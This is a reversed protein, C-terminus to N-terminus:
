KKRVIIVQNSTFYADSFDVNERREDTATMGAVVFDVAGSQLAAILSDFAMDVVQLKRGMDLAVFQSLTVDFGVIKSGEVYEFPPFAANTGMKIVEGSTEVEDPVHVVGDAPVFADLMTQYTGDDKLTRITRNVADLVETNGKKVAVAYEETAFTDNVIELEPTKKVIQRAPQEDLIVADIAGSKLSLAADIGSRFSKLTADKVNEQIYLEGTTGAQCGIKKGALDAASNIVVHKKGACSACLFLSALLALMLVSKTGVMIEVKKM